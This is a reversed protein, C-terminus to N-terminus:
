AAAALRRYILEADPTHDYFTTDASARRIIEPNPEFRQGYMKAVAAM